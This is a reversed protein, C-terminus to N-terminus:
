SATVANYNVAVDRLVFLVYAVGARFFPLQFIDLSFTLDM